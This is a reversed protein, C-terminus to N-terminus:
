IRDLELNELIERESTKLDFLKLDLSKKDLKAIVRIESNPSINKFDNEDLREEVIVLSNDLQFFCYNQERFCSVLMNYFNRSNELEECIHKGLREYDLIM